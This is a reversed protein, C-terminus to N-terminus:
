LEEASESKQKLQGALLFAVGVLFVLTPAMDIAQLLPDPSVGKPLSFVTTPSAFVLVWLSFSGFLLIYGVVFLRKSQMREIISFRSIRIGILFFPILGSCKYHEGDGRRAMEQKGVM